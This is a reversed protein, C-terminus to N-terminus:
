DEFLPKGAQARRAYLAIREERGPDCYHRQVRDLGAIQVYCSYCWRGVTRRTWQGCEACYGADCGNTHPM